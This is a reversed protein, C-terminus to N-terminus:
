GREVRMQPHGPGQFLHHVLDTVRDLVLDPEAQRLREETLMETRVLVTAAGIARGAAMDMPHDGVMAVRTGTAGLATLAAELHQPDPKVRAVDDRTLLVGCTLPWRALVAEVAQRCNRTVIGVRYGMASLRELMEPVGPYPAVRQAAEVEIRIIAQNTALALHAAAEEDTLALQATAHSIVELTPLKAWPSPDIGARRCLALVQNQLLGFDISPEILTGDLDFLLTEVRLDM